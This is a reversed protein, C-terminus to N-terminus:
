MYPLLAEIGATIDKLLPHGTEAMEDSSRPIPALNRFREVAWVALEVMNWDELPLERALVERDKQWADLPFNRATGPVWRKKEVFEKAAAQAIFFDDVVLRAATKLENARSFRDKAAEAKEKRMVLLYNTGAAIGATIVAGLLVGVFGVIAQDVNKIWEAAPVLDLVDM